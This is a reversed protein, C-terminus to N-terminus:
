RNIYLYGAVAVLGLLLAKNQMLSGLDFGALARGENKGYKVYHWLGSPMAKMKVAKAVDSHKALYKGEDFGAPVDKMLRQFHTLELNAGPKNTSRMFKTAGASTLLERVNKGGAGAVEAESAESTNIGRAEMIRRQERVPTVQREVEVKIEKVIQQAEGSAAVGPTKALNAIQARLDALESDKSASAGQGRLHRLEEQMMQLMMLMEANPAQPAPAITGKGFAGIHSGLGSRFNAPNYASVNRM